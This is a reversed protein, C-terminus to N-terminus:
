ISTTQKINTMVIAPPSANYTLQHDIKSLTNAIRKAMEYVLSLRTNQLVAYEMFGGINVVGTLHINGIPPLHKNLAAGPKLPGVGAILQGVSNSKGLCADIAVIFPNNHRRHIIDLQSQLNVAHIPDFLTGYITIHKPNKGSFFSGALPGLSDGTSRDTGIFLVVYECPTTPFWSILKESLRESAGPDSYLVRFSEKSKHKILNM